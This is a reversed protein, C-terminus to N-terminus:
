REERAPHCWLRRRRLCLRGRLRGGGRFEYVLQLTLKTDALAEVRAARLDSALEQRQELERCTGVDLLHAAELTAQVQPNPQHAASLVKHQLLHPAETNCAVDERFCLVEDSNDFLMRLNHVVWKHGKRHFNEAAYTCLSLKHTVENHHSSTTSFSQALVDGCLEISALHWLEATCHFLHTLCKGAEVLAVGVLLMPVELRGVDVIILLGLCNEEDIDSAHTDWSSAIIELVEVLTHAGHSSAVLRVQM